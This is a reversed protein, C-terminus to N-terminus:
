TTLDSAKKTPKLDVMSGPDIETWEADVEDVVSVQDNEALQTRDTLAELSTIQQMLLDAVEEGESMRSLVQKFASVQQELQKSSAGQEAHREPSIDAASIRLLTDGVHILQSTAATQKWLEALYQRIPRDLAEMEKDLWEDAAANTLIVEGGPETLVIGDTLHSLLDLMVRQQSSYRQIRDTVEEELMDGRRRQIEAMRLNDKILQRFELARAVMNDIVALHHFPKTLYGFAGNNLAEIANELTAAATMIVVQLHADRLKAARLIELGTAGPMYIDSLVLDYENQDILSLAVRGDTAQDNQFGARDLRRSILSLLAEDDEAILVRPEAM